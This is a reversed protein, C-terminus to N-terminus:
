LQILNQEQRAFKKMLPVSNPQSNNTPIWPEFTAWLHRSPRLSRVRGLIGLWIGHGSSGPSGKLRANIEHQREM